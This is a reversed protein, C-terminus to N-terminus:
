ANSGAGYLINIYNDIKEASLSLKNSIVSRIAHLVDEGHCDKILYGSAGAKFIKKIIQKDSHELFAIVKVRSNRTIQRITDTSNQDPMNINFIVVDPTLQRVMNVTTIVDKADGIVEMDPHNKFHFRLGARFFEDHDAILIKMSM